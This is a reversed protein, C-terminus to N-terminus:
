LCVQYRTAHNFPVSLDGNNPLAGNGHVTLNTLSRTVPYAQQLGASRHYPISAARQNLLINGDVEQIREVAAALPNFPNRTKKIAIRFGRLFVSGSQNQYEDDDDADCDAFDYRRFWYNPAGKMNAPMKPVFELCVNRQADKFSAVGWARAKDFGNILYIAGNSVGCALTGNIYSYWSHAYKAAYAEFKEYQRHDSRKAGEPLILLAGKTASSSFSLGAGVEEPVQPIPPQGDPFPLRVQCIHCSASAIRSGPKFEHLSESIQNQDLELIEFDSPVGGINLPHNAPHCVNFLFEFGGFDNLFGVDGIHIGDRRYEKPLHSSDSKPKWLPYGRGQPLLLSSYVEIPNLQQTCNM